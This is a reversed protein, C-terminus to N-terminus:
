RLVKSGMSICILFFVFFFKHQKGLGVTIEQYQKLRQKNEESMNYGYEM